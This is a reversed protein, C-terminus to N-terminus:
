WVAYVGAGAPRAPTTYTVVLVPANTGEGSSFTTDTTATSAFGFAYTGDGDVVSSVNWVADQGSTESSISALQAGLAPKNSWTVATESWSTNAVSYVTITSSATTQSRLKVQATVNTAGFPVGTVTFKVFMQKAFGTTSGSVQLAPDTGYNTSPFAQKATVDNGSIFTLSAASAVSAGLALALISVFLGNMWSRHPRPTYEPTPIMVFNM